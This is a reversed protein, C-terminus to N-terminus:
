LLGNLDISITKELREERSWVWKEIVESSQNALYFTM